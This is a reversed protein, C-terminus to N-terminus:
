YSLMSEAKLGAETEVFVLKLRNTNQVTGAAGRTSVTYTLDCVFAGSGTRVYHHFTLSELQANRDSVWALGGLAAYMRQSLEGNPVLVEALAQYNKTNDGGSRTTFAIYKRIFSDTITNLASIEEDSCNSIYKSPDALAEPSVEKGAPDLLKMGSPGLFPGAQYTVMHPLSDTGYFAELQPYHINDQTIYECGLLNGNVYVRFSDPVTISIPDTILYSLDFSDKTVMWSTFGMIEEGCREMEMTGILKKGCLIAYVHKDETSERSKKACTIPETLANRLVARCSDENQVHHDIQEILSASANIVYDKSLKETYANLAIHPRTQEYAAMYDWFRSLGHGCACLFVLAYLTLVVPFIWRRKKTSRDTM